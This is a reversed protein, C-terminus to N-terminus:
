PRCVGLAPRRMVLLLKMVERAPPAPRPVGGGRLGPVGTVGKVWSSREEPRPRTPSDPSLGSVGDMVSAVSAQFGAEEIAKVLVEPEVLGLRYRVDAREDDYSVEAAIVGDVSM